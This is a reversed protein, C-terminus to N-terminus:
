LHLALRAAIKDGFNARILSAIDMIALVSSEKELINQGM